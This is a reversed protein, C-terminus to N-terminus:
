KIQKECDDLASELRKNQEMASKIASAYDTVLKKYVKEDAPARMVPENKKLETFGANLEKIKEDSVKVSQKLASISLRLSKEAKGYAATDETAQKVADDTAMKAMSNDDLTKEADNIIQKSTPM